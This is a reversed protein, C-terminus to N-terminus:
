KREERIDYHYGLISYEDNNGPYDAPSEGEYEPILRDGDKRDGFVHYHCNIPIAGQSSLIIKNGEIRKVYISQPAGVPTINVTISQKDVFETWYEPLLITDSNKLRGRVYVDNYPAEPCTHRLRWGEKTPHPIDFDKKNSLVHGGCNSKVEGQALLDIGVVVDHNTNVPGMFAAPGIVALSFPNAPYDPWPAKGSYCLSGPIVPIPSESNETPGIMSTAWVNPFVSPSGTVTPGEMYASGRIAADGVGLSIAKGLGVFLQKGVYLDPVKM